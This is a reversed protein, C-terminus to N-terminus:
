PNTLVAERMRSARAALSPLLGTRALIPLAEPSVFEGCLKERPFVAKDLIRVRVGADALLIAATAGGPGGGAIVIEPRSVVRAAGRRGGTRDPIGCGCGCGCGCGHAGRHARGPLPLLAGRACAIRRGGGRGAGANGQSAVRAPRLPTRRP